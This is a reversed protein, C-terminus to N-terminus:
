KKLLSITSKNLYSFGNKQYLALAAENDDIVWLQFSKAQRQLGELFFARLLQSSLGKGRHDADVVMHGLWYVKNKFESQLIGVVKGDAFIGFLNGENAFKDLEKLSLIDGTYLDLNQNILKEAQKIEESSDIRQVKDQGSSEKLQAESLDDSKLFYNDRGLHRVFGAKQWFEVETKPFRQKGRYILEQAIPLSLNVKPLRTFDNLYYFLRYFGAEKKLLFYLNDGDIAFNLLGNECYARIEDILMFSNSVTSKKQYTQLLADLASVELRKLSHRRDLSGM